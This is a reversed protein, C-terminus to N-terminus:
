RSAQPANTTVAEVTGLYTSSAQHSPFSATRGDNRIFRQSILFGQWWVLFSRTEGATSDVHEHSLTPRVELPRFRETFPQLSEEGAARFSMSPSAFTLAPSTQRHGTPEEIPRVTSTIRDFLRGGQWSQILLVRGNVDLLLVDSVENGFGGMQLRRGSFGNVTIEEPAGVRGDQMQDLMEDVTQAQEPRIWVFEIKYLDPDNVERAPLDESRYNQLSVYEDRGDVLWDAPYDFAYGAGTNRYTETLEIEPVVTAFEAGTDEVDPVTAVTEPIVLTGSVPSSFEPQASTPSPTLTPPESRDFLSCGAVLGVLLFLSAHHMTRSMIKIM